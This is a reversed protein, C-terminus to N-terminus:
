FRMLFKTFIILALVNKPFFIMNQRERLYESSNEFLLFFHMRVHQFRSMETM